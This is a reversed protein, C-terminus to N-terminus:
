WFCPTPLPVKVCYLSLAKHRKSLTSHPITTSTIVIEYNGFMWYPGDLPIEMMHLTYLLDIIKQAAQCAVIFESGYTATEVTQQKKCFSIAPIQNVFHINGSVVTGTVLNHYLNADQYTTTRM